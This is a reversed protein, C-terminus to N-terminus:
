QRRVHHTICNSTHNHKGRGFIMREVTGCIVIMIRSMRSLFVGAIQSDQLLCQQQRRRIKFVTLVIERSGRSLVHHSDLPGNGTM